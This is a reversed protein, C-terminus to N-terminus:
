DDPEGGYIFWEITVDYTRCITAVLEIDPSRRGHLYNNLRQESIGIRRAFDVAKGNERTEIIERMSKVVNKKLDM